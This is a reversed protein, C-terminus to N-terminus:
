EKLIRVKVGKVKEKISPLWVLRRGIRLHKEEKTHVSSLKTIWEVIVEKGVKVMEMCEGDGDM